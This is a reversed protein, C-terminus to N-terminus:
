KKAYEALEQKHVNPLGFLMIGIHRVAEAKLKYFSSPSLDLILMSCDATILDGNMYYTEIIKEYESGWRPYDKLIDIAVRIEDMLGRVREEYGYIRQLHREMLNYCGRKWTFGREESDEEKLQELKIEREQILNRFIRYNNLVHKTTDDLCKKSDKNLSFQFELGCIECIAAYEEIKM